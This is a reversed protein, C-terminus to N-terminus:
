TKTIFTIPKNNFHPLSFLHLVFGDVICSMKFKVYSHPQVNVTHLVKNDPMCVCVTACLYQHACENWQICAACSLHMNCAYVQNVVSCMPTCTCYSYSHAIFHVKDTKEYTITETFVMRLPVSPIELFVM